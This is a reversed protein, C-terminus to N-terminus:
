PTGGQGPASAPAPAADARERQLLDRLLAFETHVHRDMARAFSGSFYLRWVPDAIRGRGSWGATITHRRSGVYEDMLLRDGVHDERHGTRTRHLELHTGPWWARYREDRPELLFDTVERGTLGAVTVRSEVTLM